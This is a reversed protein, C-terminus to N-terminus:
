LEEETSLHTYGFGGSRRTYLEEFHHNVYYKKESFCSRSRYETEIQRCGSTGPEQNCAVCREVVCGMCKTIQRGLFKSLLTRQFTPHCTSEEYPVDNEPHKPVCFKFNEGLTGFKMGCSACTGLNTHLKLGECSVKAGQIKGLISECSETLSVFIVPVDPEHEIVKRLAIQFFHECQKIDEQSFKEEEVINMMSQRKAVTAVAVMCEFVSHGFTYELQELQHKLLANGRELPGRCPLFYVVRHFCMDLSLCKQGINRMTLVTSKNFREYFMSLQSSEDERM